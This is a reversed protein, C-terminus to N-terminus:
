RAWAVKLYWEAEQFCFLSLEYEFTAAKKLAIRTCDSASTRWVGQIRKTFVFCCFFFDM